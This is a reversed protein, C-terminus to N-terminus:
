IKEWEQEYELVGDKYRKVVNGNADYEYSYETVFTQEGWTMTEKVINGYEDTEYAYTIPVEGKTVTGSVIVGNEYIYREYPRFEAGTDYLGVQREAINGQDDYIRRTEVKPDLQKQSVLRGEDDYSNMFTKKEVVEGSQTDLITETIVSGKDDYEYVITENGAIKKSVVYKDGGDEGGAYIGALIEQVYPEVETEYDITLKDKDTAPNWVLLDKYNKEGDSNLDQALLEYSLGDMQSKLAEDSLTDIEGLKKLYQYVAETFINVKYNGSKLDSGSIIAHIVGKNTTPKEDWVLNDDRDIDIGGAVTLLYYTDDELTALIPYNINILGATAIDTGNGQSTVGETVIANQRLKQLTFHAQALPGLVAQGTPLVEKHVFVTYSKSYRKGEETMITITKIYKTTGNDDRDFRPDYYLVRDLTDTESLVNGDMDTWSYSTINGEVGMLELDAVLHLMEGDNLHLVDSEVAPQIRQASAVAKTELSLGQLLTVDNSTKHPQELTNYIIRNNDVPSGASTDSSGGCGSFLLVAAALSFAINTYLKMLYGKVM